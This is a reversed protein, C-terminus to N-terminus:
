AILDKWQAKTGSMKEGNTTEAAQVPVSSLLRKAYAAATGAAYTQWQNNKHSDAYDCIGRVVLCPIRDMLGAAEMEFCIIGLDHALRDRTQGDKMVQDASAIIGYHIEPEDSLRPERNVLQSTDCMGCTKKYEIHDYTASFLRDQEPGPSTFYSKMKPYKTSAHSLIESIRMTGREDNATLKSITDLLIQPPKNLFGKQEFRGGHIAQSYNYQVVGSISSDNPRSVVVDGLRIDFRSSPVGGGIGVVLAFQIAPFTSRMHIAVTAAPVTGYVGTPLCAIVVNHCNIVGLTYTNNDTLPQSLQPHTEDLMAIATATELPLACIWGVTYDNHSLKKVSAM